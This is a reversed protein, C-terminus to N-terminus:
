ASRLACIGNKQCGIDQIREIIDTNKANFQEDRWLAQDDIFDRRANVIRAMPCLVPTGRILEFLVNARNCAPRQAVPLPKCIDHHFVQDAVIHITHRHKGFVGIRGQM